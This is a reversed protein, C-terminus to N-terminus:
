QQPLRARDGVQSGAGWRMGEGRDDVEGQAGRPPRPTPTSAALRIRGGPLRRLPDRALRRSLGTHVCSQAHYFEMLMCKCNFYRYCLLFLSNYLLTDFYPPFAFQNFALSVSHNLALVSQLSCYSYFTAFFHVLILAIFNLYCSWQSACHVQSFTLYLMISSVRGGGSQTLGMDGANAKWPTNHPQLHGDGLLQM